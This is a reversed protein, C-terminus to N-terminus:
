AAAVEKLFRRVADNFLAPTEWYMSHPAGPVIEVRASTLLEGARRVTAPSLVSDQEGALLLLPFPAANLEAVTPGDTNLNRLDAMKATNFTGMAAGEAPKNQPIRAMVGFRGPNAQCAELAYDVRDGEWSPPIILARDVGAEDMLALCEEYTFAEERHGNLRMRERAGPIWPRGPTEERWIHVQSDVIFM